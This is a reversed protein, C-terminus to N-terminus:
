LLGLFTELTPYVTVLGFILSIVLAIIAIKLARGATKMQKEIQETQKISLIQNKLLSVDERLMNYITNAQRLNEERKEKWHEVSDNLLSESLWRLENITKLLESYVDLRKKVVDVSDLDFVQDLDYYSTYIEGIGDTQFDLTNPNQKVKELVNRWANVIEDM